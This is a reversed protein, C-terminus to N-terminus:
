KSFFNFVQKKTEGCPSDFFGFINCFLLKFRYLDFKKEKFREARITASKQFVYVRKSQGNKLFEGLNLYSFRDKPVFIVLIWSMAKLANRILNSRELFNLM